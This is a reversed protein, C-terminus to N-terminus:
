DAADDDAIYRRHLSSQLLEIFLGPHVVDAGV